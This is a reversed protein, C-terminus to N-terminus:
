RREPRGSLKVNSGHRDVEERIGGRWFRYENGVARLADLARVRLVLGMTLCRRSSPWKEEAHPMFVNVSGVRYM